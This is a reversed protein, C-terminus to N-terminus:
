PFPNAVADGQETREGCQARGIGEFLREAVARQTQKGYNHGPSFETMVSLAVRCGDREIFATQHNVRGTGTGWGGKFFIRWGEPRANAIGWRQRPVIDSLLSRAYRRHRKPVFRDWKAFFRAQDRSSTRSLGWIPHYSFDRMGARRAMAGIPGAGLMDRVRTAATNNSSRIMPGLLDRESGRLSRSRVGPRSLYTALLLAKFLSAMPAARAGNMQHMRGRLDVIAFRVDGRRQRAYRRAAHVDPKWGLGVSDTGQTDVPTATPGAVAPGEIAAIPLISALVILVTLRKM